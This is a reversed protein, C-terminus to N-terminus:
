ETVKEVKVIRRVYVTEERLGMSGDKKAKKMVLVITEPSTSYHSFRVDYFFGPERQYEKGDWTKETVVIKDGMNLDAFREKAKDIYHQNISDQFETIKENIARRQEKLSELGVLKTKLELETM